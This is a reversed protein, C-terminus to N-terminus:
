QAVSECANRTSALLSSGKMMGVYTRAREDTLESRVGSKRKQENVTGFLALSSTVPYSSSYYYYM